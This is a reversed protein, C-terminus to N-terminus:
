IYLYCKGQRSSMKLLSLSDYGMKIGNVKMKGLPFGIMFNIYIKVSKNKYKNSMHIYEQGICVTKYLKVLYKHIQLYYMSNNQAHMFHLMLSKM